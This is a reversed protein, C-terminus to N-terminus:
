LPFMTKVLASSTMTAIRKSVNYKDAIHCLMWEDFNKEFYKFCKQFYEIHVKALFTMAKNNAQGKSESELTKIISMELLLIKLVEISELSGSIKASKGILYELCDLSIFCFSQGVM